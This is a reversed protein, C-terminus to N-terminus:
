SAPPTGRLGRDPVGTRRQANIVLPARLNVSLGEGHRSILVSVQADSASQLRIPELEARSVSLQYDPDFRRPTSLGFALDAHELSQLWALWGCRSDSLLVWRRCDPLGILGGVLLLEDAPQVNLRGFRTTSVEM